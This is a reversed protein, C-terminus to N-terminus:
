GDLVARLIESEIERVEARSLHEGKELAWEFNGILNSSPDDSCACVLTCAVARIVDSSAHLDQYASNAANFADRRVKENVPPGLSQELKKLAKALRKDKRDCGLRYCCAIGFRRFQEVPLTEICGPDFTVLM